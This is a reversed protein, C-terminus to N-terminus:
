KVCIRIFNIIVGCAIKVKIIKINWVSSDEKKFTKSLILYFIIYNKKTLLFFFFNCHWKASRSGNYVRGRFFIKLKNYKLEVIKARTKECNGITSQGVVTLKVSWFQCNIGFFYGIKKLNLLIYIIKYIKAEVFCTNYERSSWKASQLCRVECEKVEWQSVAKHSHIQM